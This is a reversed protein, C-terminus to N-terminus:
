AVQEHRPQQERSTHLPPSGPAAVSFFSSDPPAQLRTCPCIRYLRRPRFVSGDTPLRADCRQDAEFPHAAFLCIEFDPGLKLVGPLTAAVVSDNAETTPVVKHFSRRSPVSSNSVDQLKHYLPCARTQFNRLVVDHCAHAGDRACSVSCSELPRALRIVVDLCPCLRSTAPHRANCWRQNGLGRVQALALSRIAAAIPKKSPRGPEKLTAPGVPGYVFDKFEPLLCRGANLDEVDSVFAPLEGGRAVRCGFPCAFHATVRDCDRIFSPDGAITELCVGFDRECAQWCHEDRAGAVTRWFVGPVDGVRSQASIWDASRRSAVERAHDAARGEDLALDRTWRCAVDVEASSMSRPSRSTALARRYEAVPSESTTRPIVSDIKKRVTSGVVVELPYHDSLVATLPNEVAVACGHDSWDGRLLIHDLRAGLVHSPDLKLLTPVTPGCGDADGADCPDRLGAAALAKAVSADLRGSKDLFKRQLKGRLEVDELSAIADPLADVYPRLNPPSNLDGMVAARSGTASAVAASLATAEVIRARAEFPTLHTAFFDATACRVHLVGHFFGRRIEQVKECSEDRLSAFGVHFGSTAFLMAAWAYGHAGAWAQFASENAFGNLELLAVYDFGSAELWEGVLTEAGRELMRFTNYEGLRLGAERCASLVTAEKSSSSECAAAVKADLRRSYRSPFIVSANVLEIGTAAKRGADLRWRLLVLAPDAYELVKLWTCASVVLGAWLWCEYSWRRAGRAMRLALYPVNPDFNLIM